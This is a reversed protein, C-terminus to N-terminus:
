MYRVFIVIGVVLYMVKKNLNKSVRGKLSLMEKVSDKIHLSSSIFSSYEHNYKNDITVAKANNMKIIPSETINSSHASTSKTSIPTHILSSSSSYFQQTTLINFDSHFTSKDTLVITKTPSISIANESTRVYLYSNSYHSFGECITFNPQWEKIGALELLDVSKLKDEEINLISSM